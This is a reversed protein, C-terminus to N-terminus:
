YRPLGGKEADFERLATYFGSPMSDHYMLREIEEYSLHQKADDLLNSIAKEPMDEEAMYTLLSAFFQYNKHTM